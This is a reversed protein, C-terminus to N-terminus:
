SNAKEKIRRVLERLEWNPYHCDEGLGEKVMERISEIEYEFNNKATDHDDKAKLAIGIEKGLTKYLDRRKNWKLLYEIRNRHHGAHNERQKSFILSKLTMDPIAIERVQAAKATSWGTEGRVILGAEEPVEKKNIMGSPVAFYFRHCHGLYGRWKGSRIDGLFDSRSVKVEYITFLFRNYSPKIEIVDARQINNRDDTKGQSHRQLIGLFVSGLPVDLFNTGKINALDEALENHKWEKM